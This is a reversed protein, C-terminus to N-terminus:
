LVVPSEAVSARLMLNQNNIFIFPLILGARKGQNFIQTFYLLMNM